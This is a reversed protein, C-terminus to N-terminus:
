PPPAYCHFFINFWSSKQRPKTFIIGKWPPTRRAFRTPLYQCIIMVAPM